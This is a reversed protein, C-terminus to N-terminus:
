KTTVSISGREGLDPLVPEAKLVVEREAGDHRVRIALEQEGVDDIAERVACQAASDGTKLATGGIAIVDDGVAIGARDAPSGGVLTVVSVKGDIDRWSFGLGEAADSPDAGPVPVFRAVGAAIDLVVRFNRLLRYGLLIRRAGVPEIAGEEVQEVTIPVGPLSVGGLEFAHFRTEYSVGAQVGTATQSLAGTRRVIGPEDFSHGLAEFLRPSVDISGNNGTDILAWHPQGEIEVEAVPPTIFTSGDPLIEHRRIRVPTGGPVLAEGSPALTIKQAAYDIEIATRDLFGTGREAGVGLVGDIHVCHEAFSPLEAAFGSVRRMHLGGVHLGEIEISTSALIAGAADELGSSSSMTLGLERAIEARLVTPAGTDLLMTLERDIGDLRVPVLVLGRRVVVPVEIASSVVPPLTHGMPM